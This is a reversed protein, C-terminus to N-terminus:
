CISGFSGLFILLDSTTVSGDGNLDAPCPSANSFICTGNDLTSAPDYNDADLYTCGESVCSDFDCTGDNLTADVDYNCACSDTCGESICSDFECSGDNLTANENYNCACSDTCGPIKLNDALSFLTLSGTEDNSVLLSQYGENVFGPISAGNDTIDSHLFLLDKAGLHNFSCQDMGENQFDRNTAYAQYSASLTPTNDWEILNFIMSGGMEELSVILIDKDNLEGIAIGAPEPGRSVSAEDGSDYDSKLSNAYEPM